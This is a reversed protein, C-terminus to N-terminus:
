NKKVDVASNTIKEPVFLAINSIAESNIYTSYNYMTVYETSAAAIEGKLLKAAMKGTEVGLEYYDVAVTAVCGSEVQAKDCGYVPIGFQNTQELLTPLINTINSDSVNSFCDVGLTILTDVARTVEEQSSVGISRITFGHELGLLSYEGIASVSNPESVTYVIGITDAGPQLERILKLQEDIPLADSTGTVNGEALGAGEPDTVAAFLVPIDTGETAAVSATAANTAISCILDVKKSVFEKAITDCAATDFDANQYDITFDTGETMGADKLGQLFGERSQNLSTHEGYQCIGINKVAPQQTTGPQPTVTASLDKGSGNNCAAGGIVMTMTMAACLMRKMTKRM